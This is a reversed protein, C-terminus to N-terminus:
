VNSEGYTYTVDIHSNKVYRTTKVLEKDFGTDGSITSIILGLDRMDNTVTITKSADLYYTKIFYRKDIMNTHNDLSAINQYLTEYTLKLSKSLIDAQTELPTIQNNNVVVTSTNNGCNAGNFRRCIRYNKNISKESAIYLLESDSLTDQKITSTNLTYGTDYVKTLFSNSM